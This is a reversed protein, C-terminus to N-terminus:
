ITGIVKLNDLNMIPSGSSGSETACLHFIKNNDILKIVNVSLSSFMGNPYHIIYISKNEYKEKFNNFTIDFLNKNTELIIKNKLNDYDKIEIM